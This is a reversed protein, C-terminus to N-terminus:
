TMRPLDPGKQKTLRREDKGELVVFIFLDSSKDKVWTGHGIWDARHAAENAHLNSIEDVSVPGKLDYSLRPLSLRTLRDSHM